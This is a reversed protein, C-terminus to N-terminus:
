CGRRLCTPRDQMVNLTHPSGVPKKHLKLLIDVFAYAM